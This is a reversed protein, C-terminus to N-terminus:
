PTLSALLQSQILPTPRRQSPLHFLQPPTPILLLILIQLRSLVVRRRLEVRRLNAAGSRQDLAVSIRAVPMEVLKLHM